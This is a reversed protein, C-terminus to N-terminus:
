QLLWKWLPIISIGEEEGEEEFTIVISQVESGFQRRFRLLQKIEQRNSKVEIVKSIRNNHPFVFDVEYSSRYFFHADAHVCVANELMAPLVRSLDDNLAFILNPASFYAKKLKRASAVPSGRYNFVFRILLGFELYEFYNSITREDRGLNKALEKYNVMMGPNKALISILSKLLELDTIRFEEQIDKYIIRDIVNNSLYKRAVEEDLSILEPFMGYKLYQYSLAVLERKWLSPNRRITAPDKGKLVLYEEFSLPELRFDFIRGALSEKGKKQLSVAASGSLFIKLSPYLDYYIKIKNEWDPVKQIEDLFLYVRQSLQDFPKGLILKQYNELVEKLDFAIEDFSFYFIHQHPNEKLLSEIMQYFLTTKGTRRLGRLLLMQRNEIYKNIEFFLERKFAPLFDTRVQGTKWWGNFRELDALDM